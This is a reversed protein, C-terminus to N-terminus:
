IGNSERAKQLSLVFQQSADLIQSQLTQCAELPHTLLHGKYYFAFLAKDRGTVLLQHQMQVVYHYPISEVMKLFSSEAYPCKIEVQHNESLGDIQAVLHPHERSQLVKEELTEGLRTTLMELVVPELAKGHETARNPKFKEIGLKRKMLKLKSTFPCVGLIAASESAGIHSLRWELWDKSDHFKYEIYPLSQNRSVGLGTEDGKDGSSAIRESAETAESESEQKGM